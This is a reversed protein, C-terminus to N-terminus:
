QTKSLAASMEYDAMIQGTAPWDLLTYFFHILNKEVKINKNIWTLIFIETTPSSLQVNLTPNRELDKTNKISKKQLENDGGSSM